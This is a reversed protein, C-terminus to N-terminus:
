WSVDIEKFKFENSILYNETTEESDWHKRWDVGKMNEIRWECEAEYVKTEVKSSQYQM